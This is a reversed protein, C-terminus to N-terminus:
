NAKRPKESGAKLLSSSSVQHKLERYFLEHECRRKPLSLAGLRGLPQAYLAVLEGAPQQREDLLTTWLRLVVAKGGARQVRARVERVLLTNKGQTAGKGSARM